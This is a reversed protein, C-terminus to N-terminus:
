FARSFHMTASTKQDPSINKWWNQYQDSTYSILNKTTYIHSSFNPFIEDVGRSTKYNNTSHRHFPFYLWLTYDNRM